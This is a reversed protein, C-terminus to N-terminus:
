SILLLYILVYAIIIAPIFLAIDKFRQDKVVKLERSLLHMTSM